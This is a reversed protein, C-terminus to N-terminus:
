GASGTLDPFKFDYLFFSFGKQIHQTIVHRIVFYSKGAGPTGLVVLARFPNIINIWSRKLKGKFKYQAPLNISFENELLREEQPFTENKENFIDGRLKLHLLRTAKSGGALLSLYGTSTISIYLCSVITEDAPILLFLSSIFFLLAGILIYFLVPGITLKDDKKGKIGILSVTLLLLAMLKPKDVGSLLSINQTLNFILRDALGITFGWYKFAPYCVCYFHILLLCISGMRMFDLIKRLAQVNEGTQM